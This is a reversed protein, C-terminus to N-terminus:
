LELLGEKRGPNMKYNGTLCKREENMVDNIQKNRVFHFSLMDM